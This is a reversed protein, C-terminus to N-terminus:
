SIGSRVKDANEPHEISQRVSASDNYKDATIDGFQRLHSPDFAILNFYASADASILQKLQMTDGKIIMREKPHHMEPNTM